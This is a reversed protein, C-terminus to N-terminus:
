PCAGYHVSVDLQGCELPFSLWPGPLPAPPPGFVPQEIRLRGAPDLRSMTAGCLVNALEIVMSQQEAPGVQDDEIGLFGAALRQPCSESISVCLAGTLSGDFRATATAVAPAPCQSEVPDGIPFEFFMTELVELVAQECASRLAPDHLDAVAM